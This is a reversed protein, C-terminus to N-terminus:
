ALPLEDHLSWHSVPEGANTISNAFAIRPNPRSVAGRSACYHSAIAIFVAVILTDNM